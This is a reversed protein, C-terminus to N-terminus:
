SPPIRAAFDRALADARDLPLGVVGAVYKGKSFLFVPKGADLGFYGGFHAVFKPEALSNKYDLLKTGAEGESAAKYVFLEWESKNDKYKAVNGAPLFAKGMIPTEVVDASVRNMMPFRRAEDMPRPPRPAEAAPKPPESCAALLCLIAIAAFRMVVFTVMNRFPSM